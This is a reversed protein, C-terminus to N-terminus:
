AASIAIIESSASSQPIAEGREQLDKLHNKIVERILERVWGSMFNWIAGM